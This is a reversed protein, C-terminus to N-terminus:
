TQFIYNRFMGCNGNLCIEEESCQGNGLGWKGGKCTCLGNVCVEGTAGNKNCSKPNCTYKEIFLFCFLLLFFLLLLLLLLLIKM